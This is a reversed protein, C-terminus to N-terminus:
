QKITGCEPKIWKVMLDVCVRIDTQCIRNGNYKYFDNVYMCERVGAYVSCTLIVHCLALPTHHSYSLPSLSIYTLISCAFHILVTVGVIVQM